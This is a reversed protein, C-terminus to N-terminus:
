YVPPLTALRNAPSPPEVLKKEVSRCKIRGGDM